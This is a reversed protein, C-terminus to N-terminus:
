EHAVRIELVVRVYSILQLAFGRTEAFAFSARIRGGHADYRRGQFASLFPHTNGRGVSPSPRALAALGPHPPPRNAIEIFTSYAAGGDDGRANGVIGSDYDGDGRERPPALSRLLPCFRVGRHPKTGRICRCGYRRNM